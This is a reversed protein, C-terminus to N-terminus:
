YLLEQAKVRDDHNLVPNPATPGYGLLYDIARYGKSDTQYPDAGAALLLQITTLSGNAAAYILATRADNHLPSDYKNTTAGWTTANLNANHQLLWNVSRPQNFQAAEMLATKGINNVTDLKASHALLPDLAEPYSGAAILILPDIGGYRSCGALLADSNNDMDLAQQIVPLAAHQLLLLRPSNDPLLSGCDGGFVLSFLASSAAQMGQEHSLNMTVYYDALERQAKEFEAKLRLSTRYNNLGLYGWNQYPYKAGSASSPGGFSGPDVQMATQTSQQQKEFGYVMSGDFDDVFHGDASTADEMFGAVAKSPYNDPINCGSRPLFNDMNSFYRARTAEALAPRAKLVDCPIPYQFVSRDEGMSALIIRSVLPEDSGDYATLQFEGPPKTHTYSKAQVDDLLRQILADREPTSPRFAHLFLAYDLEGQLDTKAAQKLVPEAADPTTAMTAIAVDRPSPPPQPAAPSPAKNIADCTGDQAAGDSCARPHHSKLLRPKNAIEALQAIAHDDSPCDLLPGPLAKLADANAAFDKEHGHLTRCPLRLWLGAQSEPNSSRMGRDDRYIPDLGDAEYYLTVDVARIAALLRPLPQSAHSADTLSAEYAGAQSKRWSQLGDMKQTASDVAVAIAEDMRKDDGRLYAAYAVVVSERPDRNAGEPVARRPQNAAVRNMDSQIRIFVRYPNDYSDASDGIAM